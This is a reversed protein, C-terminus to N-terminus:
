SIKKFVKGKRFEYIYDCEKLINERHSIIIITM